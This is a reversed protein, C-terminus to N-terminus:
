CCRVLPPPPVLLPARPDPPCADPPPSRATGRPVAGDPPLLAARLLPPSVVVCEAAGAFGFERVVSEFASRATGFQLRGRPSRGAVPVATARVCGGTCSPLTTMM